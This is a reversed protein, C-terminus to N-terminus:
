TLWLHKWFRADRSKMGCRRISLIHILSLNLTSRNFYQGPQEISQFVDRCLGRDEFLYAVKMQKM